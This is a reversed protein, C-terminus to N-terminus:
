DTRNSGPHSHPTGKKQKKKPGQLQPATVNTSQQQPAPVQGLAGIAESVGSMAQRFAELDAQQQQAARTREAAAQAQMDAEQQAARAQEAAAKVAQRQKRVQAKARRAAAVIENEAEEDLRSMVDEGTLASPADDSTAPASESPGGKLKSLADDLSGDSAGQPGTKPNRKNRAATVRRWFDEEGAVSIDPKKM